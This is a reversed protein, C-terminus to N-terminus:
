FKFQFNLKTTDDADDNVTVSTRNLCIDLGKTPTWILGAMTVEEANGDSNSDIEDMRVIASLNNNVKYTAYMSTLANDDGDVDETNSEYGVRLGNGAWGAFFGTVTTEEDDDDKVTSYAVGFNYGDNKNLKTEGYALQISTKNNGDVDKEKYGEGNSIMFTGTLNGHKRTIAFGLDATASFKYKDMASKYLFRHGWTKEQINLMNMGIMGMSIKMNSDVKWDLQAKKLFGMWRNDNDAAVPTWSGDDASEDTDPTTDDDGAIGDDGAECTTQNLSTLDSCFGTTQTNADDIKGVDTQFKFSLEDSIDTKYTFYTRSLSFSDEYEFYTVGSISSSSFLMSFGATLIIAIRKM